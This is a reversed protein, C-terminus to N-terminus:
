LFFQFVTIPALLGSVKESLREQHNLFDYAGITTSSTDSLKSLFSSTHYTKHPSYSPLPILCFANTWNDPLM